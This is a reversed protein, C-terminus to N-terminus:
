RKHDTNLWTVYESRKSLMESESEFPGHPSHTEDYFFWGPPYSTDHEKWAEEEYRYFLGDECRQVLIM